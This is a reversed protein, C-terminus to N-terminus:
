ILVNAEMYALLDSRTMSRVARGTVTVYLQDVGQADFGLLAMEDLRAGQVRRRKVANPHELALTETNELM